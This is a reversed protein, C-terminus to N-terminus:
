LPRRWSQHDAGRSLHRAAPADKRRLFVSRLVAGDRAPAPTACDSESPARRQRRGGMSIVAISIKAGYGFCHSLCRSLAVGKGCCCPAIPTSSALILPQLVWPKSSTWPSLPLLPAAIAPNNWSKPKNERGRLPSRPLPIIPTARLANRTPTLRTPHPQSALPASGGKSDAHQISTLLTLELNLDRARTVPHQYRHLGYHKQSMKSHRDVRYGSVGSSM